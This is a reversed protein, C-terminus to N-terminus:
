GSRPEAGPVRPIRGRQAPRVRSNLFVFCMRGKAEGRGLSCRSGGVGVRRRVAPVFGQRGAGALEAPSHIAARAPANRGPRASLVPSPRGLGFAVTWHLWWLRVLLGPRATAPPGTGATPSPPPPPPHPPAPAALAPAAGRARAAGPRGPGTPGPGRGRSDARLPTACGCATSASSGSRRSRSPAIGSAEGARAAALEPPGPCGSRGGPRHQRSAAPCRARLGLRDPERHPALRSEAQGQGPGAVPGDRPHQPRQRRPTAHQIVVLRNRKNQRATHTSHSM